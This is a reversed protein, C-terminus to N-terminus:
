FIKLGFITELIKGLWYGTFIILFGVLASTIRKQGQKVQDPNGASTLLQFGGWVLYLLLLIGAVVFVYPLIKTIIEGITLTDSKFDIGNPNTTWGTPYNPVQAILNQNM